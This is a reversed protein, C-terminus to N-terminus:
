EPQQRGAQRTERLAKLNARLDELNGALAARQSQLQDTMGDSKAKERESCHRLYDGFVALAQRQESNSAPDTTSAAPHCLSETMLGMTDQVMELGTVFAEQDAPLLEHWGIEEEDIELGAARLKGFRRYRQVTPSADLAEDLNRLENVVLDLSQRVGILDNDRAAVVVNLLSSHFSATIHSVKALLLGDNDDACAPAAATNSTFREAIM